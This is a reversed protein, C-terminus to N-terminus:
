LYDIKYDEDLLILINLTFLTFLYVFFYLIIFRVDDKDHINAGTELLCQVVVVHGNKSALLLATCKFQIQISVPLYLVSEYINLMSYVEHNYIYVTHFQSGQHLM